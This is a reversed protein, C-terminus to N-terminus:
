LIGQAALFRFVGDYAIELQPESFGHRGDVIAIDTVAGGAQRIREVLRATQDPPVTTDATGHVAIVPCLGHGVLALPSLRLAAGPDSELTLAQRLFPADALAAPDSVGYFDVVAAIPPTERFAALMALHAGASEGTAVIRRPSVGYGAAHRIVWELALSADEAAASLRLRYDVNFVVFGRALYRRCVRQRMEERSGRIWGGGHFVVVAPRAGRSAFRPRLIELRNDPHPGYLIEPLTEVWLPMLAAQTFARARPSLAYVASALAAGAALGLLVARAGAIM